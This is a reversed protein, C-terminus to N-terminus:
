HKTLYYHSTQIPQVLALNQGSKIVGSKPASFLAVENWEGNLGCRRTYVSPRIM